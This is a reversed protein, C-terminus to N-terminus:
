CENVANLTFRIQDFRKVLDIVRQKITDLNGRLADVICDAIASADTEVMGQRTIEQVGIRLGHTGLEESLRVAGTIINCEELQDALTKAQGFQSVVLILTHSETFGLTSGVLPVGRNELAQGLSKANAVIAAAHESGYEAWEM